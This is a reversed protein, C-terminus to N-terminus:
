KAFVDVPLEPGQDQRDRDALRAQAADRRARLDADAPDRALLQNLHWHAAFWQQQKECEEAEQRQWASWNRDSRVVREAQWAPSVPTGDWVRVMTDGSASAIHRGDPSYAVGHVSRGHGRLTLVEQGTAADWVKVTLDASATAIRRGDPSYAVGWVGNSHGRLTLVERGTAADWVKATQDASASAICRGDPSYAVGFVGGTHGRLTPGEQGSEADWVRVGRDIGVSASAIHRGDPSYALKRIMQTHGRLTRVERGTEADWLMITGDAGASAIHRRDPSYAVAYVGGDHGTLTRALEGTEADWLMVKGDLGASAIHRGDPSYAVGWVSQTHGRLTLLEQGTAADWVKVMGDFSTSGIRRGDPSYALNSLRGNHGRFTLVGQGAAADWVRVTRDYSASAIHRGDPSYALNSLRDTHGRFSLLEQGTAADWVKVTRDYSASAIRRGDPSYAVKSVTQAHGVLTCVEQGTVADCVKAEWRNISAIHRGDPSFAISNDPTFAISHNIGALTCIEVGTVADWVKVKGGRSAIAIRRGDPSYAVASVSSDHGTLTRVVAGTEADWMKVTGDAGASAIQRGDPSYAVGPFRGDHGILTRVVAGTQADWVRVTGDASTSAIHRGDPSYAVGQVSGEHGTLTRVVAGTQANWVKVWRFSTSAIHRGDPSYAVGFVGAEHGNLDLLSSHRQQDLFHWEWDRREPPCEDLLAATRDLANDLWATTAQNIRLFYLYRSAQALAAQATARSREALDHAKRLQGSYALSLVAVVLATAVVATTVLVVRHRHAAKSLRYWASPPCAAVPEDDLYRRVDAALGSASEYRRNRDKELARMVIWDLEGRVLKALRRPDSGRKASVETLTAGLTSLRTSPRPPEEERIVRRVEDFAAKGLAERDFPTTGTLLEYLLVGLSYIDSRTDIDLGSLEAQEPSMYLPTGVLQAFGTFLTKETLQQGIAKAVGFDIVQPVPVGDHLTVLVNSPKLDRHIIGKQHAHQVAQCVQIFLELREPIPLRARDCYDTIPIGRVLEMVFYPRGNDAAGADLVKAINPHDMLALAQREAEFRAIVQKTDMGPKIVKLAVKRRIPHAQEAMYVVGMGGEGIVELLKYPGILSGPRETPPPVDVTVAVDAGPARDLVFSGVARHARILAEVRARLRDDGGCARRLYAEQERPDDLDLAQMFISRANM